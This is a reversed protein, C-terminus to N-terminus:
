ISFQIFFIRTSCKQPKKLGQFSSTKKKGLFLGSIHTKKGSKKPAKQNGEFVHGCVFPPLQV